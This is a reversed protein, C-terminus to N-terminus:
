IDSSLHLGILRLPLRNGNLQVISGSNSAEYAGVSVFPEQDTVPLDQIRLDSRNKIGYRPLSESDARLRWTEIIAWSDAHRQLHPNSDHYANRDQPQHEMLAQLISVGIRMM